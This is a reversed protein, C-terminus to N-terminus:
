RVSIIKYINDNCFNTLKISLYIFTKFIERCLILLSDLSKATNQTHKINMEINFIIASKNKPIVHTSLTYIEIPM